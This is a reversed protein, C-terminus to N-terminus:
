IPKTSYPTFSNYSVRRKGLAEVARLGESTLCM